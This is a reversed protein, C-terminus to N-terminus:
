RMGVLGTMLPVMVVILGVGIVDVVAGARIMATISVSGSGYVIANASTSIPLMFGYRTAFTAILMATLADGGVSAVLAPVIPLLIGVAALNSAAESLLVGTIAILLYMPLDSTGGVSSALERGILEALGTSAMLGGLTLGTGVLLVTGWDIRTAEAWTLTFRREKWNVPLLFLLTAALIAAVSSPMRDGIFERAASERGAALSVFTPTLWLVVVLSFVIVTNKEGRSMPGLSARESQVWRRAGPIRVAEPRNLVLLLVCLVGFLVVVIPAAVITWDSFSIRVDLQQEILRRAVLNTPDGIPTLLSGVTPAYATMLMLATGFRLQKRAALAPDIARIRDSLATNLGLAIPLLMAAVSGNDMVAALLVGLAGFSAVVRWTSRAVGPLSLVELAIRRSLDYKIMAQAIMFSGILLFLTESAFQNFVREAARPSSGPVDPPVDLVVLLALVLLSTVPIPLADSVWFVIALSLVALLGQQERTLPLPVLVIVVLLLSGVVLGIPKRLSSASADPVGGIAVGAPPSATVGTRQAGQIGM